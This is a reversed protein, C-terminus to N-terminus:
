IWEKSNRKRKMGYARGEEASKQQKVFVYSKHARLSVPVISDINKWIFLAVVMWLIKREPKGELYMKAGGKGFLVSKQTWVLLFWCKKAKTPIIIRLLWTIEPCHNVWSKTHITIRTFFFFHNLWPSFSVNQIEESHKTPLALFLRWVSSAVKESYLQTSRKSMKICFNSKNTVVKTCGSIWLTNCWIM